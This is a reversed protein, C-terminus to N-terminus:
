HYPYLGKSMCQFGCVGVADVGLEFATGDMRVGLLLLLLGLRCTSSSENLGADAMAGNPCVRIASAATRFSSSARFCDPTLWVDATWAAQPSPIGLLSDSVTLGCNLVASSESEAGDGLEYTHFAM